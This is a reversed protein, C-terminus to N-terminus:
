ERGGARLLRGLVKAVVVVLFAAAVLGVVLMVATLAYGAFEQRDVPLRELMYYCGVAFAVTAM